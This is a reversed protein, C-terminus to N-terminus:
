HDVTPKAAKTLAPRRRGRGAEPAPQARDVAPRHLAHLVCVVFAVATTTAPGAALVVVPVDGSGYVGRLAFATLAAVCAALISVALFPPLLAWSAVAFAALRDRIPAGHPRWRMRLNAAADLVGGASVLAVALLSMMSLWDADDRSQQVAGLWQQGPLSVSPLPLTAFAAHVIERYGAEGDENLVLVARVAGSEIMTSVRTGQEGQQIMGLRTLAQGFHSASIYTTAFPAPVSPCAAGRSGLQTLAPCTGALVAGGDLVRLVRDAGVRDVFRATQATSGLGDVQIVRYGVSSQVALARGLEGDTRTMTVLAYTPLTVTVALAAAFGALRRSNRLWWRSALPAATWRLPGALGRSWRAFGRTHRGVTIPISALLAICALILVWEALPLGVAGLILTVSGCTSLGKFWGLRASAGESGRIRRPARRGQLRCLSWVQVGVAIVTVGATAGAVLIAVRGASHDVDASAFRYGTVPLSGGDRIMWWFWAVAVAAGAAATAATGALQRAVVVTSPRDRTRMPRTRGALATLVLVPLGLLGMVLAALVGPSRDHSTSIWPYHPDSGWGAVRMWRSGPVVPASPRYYVFLEGPDALGDTGIIGGFRGFRTPLADQDLEAAAPSMWTEGPEPWHPLGPPPVATDDLPVLAIASFQRGGIVDATEGYWATAAANDSAVVPTRRELRDLRAADVDYGGLVLWMSAVTVAAALALALHRFLRSMQIGDDSRRAAA